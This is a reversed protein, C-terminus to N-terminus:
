QRRMLMPWLSSNPPWPLQVETGMADEVSPILPLSSPAPNSANLKEAKLWEGILNSFEGRLFMYDLDWYKWINYFIEMVEVDYGNHYDKRLLTTFEESEKFKIVTEAVM